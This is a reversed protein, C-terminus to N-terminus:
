IIDKCSTRRSIARDICEQRHARYRAKARDICEQRHARYRAKARDIYEQRHANYYANSSKSVSATFRASRLPFSVAPSSSDVLSSILRSDSQVAASSLESAEDDLLCDSFPCTFCCSWFRCGSSFM